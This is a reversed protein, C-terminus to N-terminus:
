EGVEESADGVNIRATRVVRLAELAVLFVTGILVLGVVVPLRLGAVELSRVSLFSGIALGSLVFNRLALRVGITSHTLSGFCGCDKGHQRPTLALVGLGLVGFLASALLFGHKPMAVLFAGVVLETLPLGIRVVVRLSRLPFWSDVSASWVAWEDLKSVASAALVLFMTSALIQTVLIRIEPMKGLGKRWAVDHL